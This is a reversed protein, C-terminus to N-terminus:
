SKWRCKSPSVLSPWTLDQDSYDKDGFRCKFRRRASYSARNRQRFHQMVSNRLPLRLLLLLFQQYSAPLGASATVRICVTTQHTCSSHQKSGCKPVRAYAFRVMVGTLARLKIISIENLPWLKKERERQEPLCYCSQISWTENGLGPTQIDIKMVVDLMILPAITNHEAATFTFAAMHSTFPRYFM